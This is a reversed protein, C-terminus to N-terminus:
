KHKLPLNASQWALVGGDLKYVTTFGQRKLKAAARAARQGTRCYVLLARQKLTELESMRSDLDGVPINLAQNLHGDLYENPERVDVIALDTRNMLQVAEAPKVENFGLLRARIISMGFLALIVVLALFLLWHNMIFEILQSM